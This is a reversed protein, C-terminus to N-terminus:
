GFSQHLVVGPERTGEFPGLRVELPTGLPTDRFGLRAGSFLFLTVSCITQHIIRAGQVNRRSFVSSGSVQVRCSRRAGILHGMLWMMQGGTSPTTLHSLPPITSICPTTHNLDLTWVVPTGHVKRQNPLLSGLLSTAVSTRQACLVSCSFNGGGGFRSKEDKERSAMSEGLVPSLFYFLRRHQTEAGTEALFFRGAHRSGAGRRPAGLPGLPEDRLELGLLSSRSTSSTSVQDSILISSLLDKVGFPRSM